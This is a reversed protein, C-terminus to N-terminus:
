EVAVKLIVQFGFDKKEAGRFPEWASIWLPDLAPGPAFEASATKCPLFRRPHAAQVGFKQHLAFKGPPVVVAMPGQRDNVSANEGGAVSRGQIVVGVLSQGGPGCPVVSAHACEIAASGGGHAHSRLLGIVRAELTLRAKKGPQDISVEFDQVLGLALSAASDQCPHGGAVAVGTMTVVVTDPAPQQVDINGGGTHTFGARSPIGAAQRNGLSISAKADAPPAAVASLVLFLLCKM